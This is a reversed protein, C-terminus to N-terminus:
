KLNFVAYEGSASSDSIWVRFEGAESGVTGDARLFQFMEETITFTVDKSEGPQLEVKRFGKLEKVPRVVSAAVDQIYMQVTQVGYVTGVNSVTVKAEIKEEATMETKNLTVESIVFDTYSLGYGFPYLPENPIDIYKSKFREKMGPLNPRGTSYANYSIPVQGVCYPFSMSLKGSPNAKGTLIDVIANGGETGPMWVELIAKAKKSVERLDLPRGNFLVVAVNENVKVIERFLEMQIESIDIMARSTAEGSQLYHEGMPMIVVDADKAANIAEELMKKCEEETQECKAADAFGELGCGPNLIPAGQLYVTKFSDFVQEAAEQITVCDKDDGTVAWSSIIQKCNTYPGIFAIKEEKNVPLIGDNKLLVFSKQAIERALNRHEECLIVQKEAEEGADKYPNEFLGLRNKLELVRMVCEDLLAEELVGEQILSALNGAYVNTMMDIDVGAELALKAAEKENESAGHAVTELIASYDSILVGDFGMEERLIDRMLQRNTSAPIGNVTNFSTMVMGAGADIGAKYSKLYFERFTHESLEVTNYDRGALAGGYGAFHKVCACVKGPESMDEGQFGKVQAKAYLSNLYPDEGTSEMVRGWRADRVLDVMPSFTVHLGSVAAEKAASEAAKGVLEPDFTAGLGLPMPFITKMGHIVDMMFLMPIHHPHNEMYEKQIKKLEEAGYTGLISGALRIDETTIGLDRAPGTVVSDPSDQYFLGLLQVLQGIKEELSMENLLDKLRGNEM